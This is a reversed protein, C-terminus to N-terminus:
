FLASHLRRESDIDPKADIRFMPNRISAASHNNREKRKKSVKKQVIM